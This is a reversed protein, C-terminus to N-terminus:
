LADLYALLSDTLRYRNPTIELPNTRDRARQKIALDAHMYIQTSDISEHGLWLAIVSIDVGAERLFMAASHRLVHPTVRRKALSPCRSVAAAAYKRVLCEVADSSLATGHRSPFLPSEPPADHAKLWERLTAVTGSTLPTSRRKRGKGLCRVHPGTSLDIDNRRLSTLEAVRLGTQVALTLLAHNRRGLWTDRDPVSLIAEVEERNLFEVIGRDFRKQPISLVRSILDAHEPHHFSAFRFLSHIAALRANRSRISNGREAELYTLFDGITTADLDAFDLAAPALKKTVALFAFLLRFTDRYAAITAPSVQRQIIM